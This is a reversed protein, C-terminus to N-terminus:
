EKLGTQDIRIKNIVKGLENAAKEYAGETIEGTVFAYEDAFGADVVDVSGFAKQVKEQNEERSGELRVFFMNTADQTEV